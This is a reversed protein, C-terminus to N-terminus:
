YTLRWSGAGPLHTEEGASSSNSSTKRNSREMLDGCIKEGSMKVVSHTLIIIILSVKM